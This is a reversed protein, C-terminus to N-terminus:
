RCENLAGSLFSMGAQSFDSVNRDVEDWDLETLLIKDVTEKDYVCVFRDSLGIKGLLCRVRENRWADKGCFGVIVFPRHFILSFCLGHFSNTVVLKSSALEVLWTKLDDPISVHHVACSCGAHLMTAKFVGDVLKDDHSHYRDFGLLYSFIHAGSGVISNDNAILSLYENRHILLTPDPVWSCECASFRKILKSGSEERSSLANFKCVQQARSEAVEIERETWKATGCSVAYAIRKANSPAFDLLVVGSVKDSTLNPIGWIQDSGAIYCDAIPPNNMLDKFTGYERTMPPRGMMDFARRMMGNIRVKEIVTRVRKSRFIKWWKWIGHWLWPVDLHKVDHGMRELVTRLAWGQLMAGYNAINFPSVLVIKM